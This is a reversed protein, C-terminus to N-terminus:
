TFADTNCRVSKPLFDTLDKQRIPEYYYELQRQFLCFKGLVFREMGARKRQVFKPRYAEKLNSQSGM